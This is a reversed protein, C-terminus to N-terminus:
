SIIKSDLCKFINAELSYTGVVEVAEGVGLEILGGDFGICNFPLEVYIRLVDFFDLFGIFFLFSCDLNVNKDVFM